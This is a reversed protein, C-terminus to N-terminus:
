VRLDEKLKTLVPVPTPDVGRAIALYTSVFDGLAIMTFLQVLRSGDRGRVERHDLGAPGIARLTAAVRRAVWAPEHGPRLVLLAFGEGRGTSWGEVENHDLEPLSAVFAPVKANENLQNKWRVAATEGSGEQAWILPTRGGIWTAVAKAENESSPREPALRVAQVRLAAAAEAIADTATPILGAAEMVGIPAAALSGIAARPMLVDQPVAVHPLGERRARVALEGGASVAVVRAGARVARDFCALTEETNGSFSLAVVITDRGVFEPPAYGKSVVIPVRSRDAYLSRLVDGAIGSGGMGCVVVSRVGEGSPLNPTGRAARFGRELQEGLGAIRGLMDSADVAAIRAPDDLVEPVSPDGGAAPVATV